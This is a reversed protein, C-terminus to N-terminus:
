GPRGQGLALEASRVEATDVAVVRGGMRHVMGLLEESVPGAMRIGIRCAPNAAQAAALPALYEAVIADDTVRPDVPLLGQRLYEDLLEGTLFVSPPFGFSVAQLRRIDLWLFDTEAALQSLLAVGRTSTITAGLGVKVGGLSQQVEDGIRRLARVELPDTIHRLTFEPCREVGAVRAALAVGAAQVQVLEPLGLPLAARPLATLLKPGDLLEIAEEARLDIGRVCIELDGGAAFVPTLVEAIVEELGNLDPTESGTRRTLRDLLASFRGTTALLDGIRTAFGAGARDRIVNVQEATTAMGYLVCGSERRAVDLVMTLDRNSASARAIPPVGSFIEGTRGDLSVATGEDYTVSGFSFRGADVDITADACGVVCPKDLARAVVAAHSTAGGRATMIGRAALM